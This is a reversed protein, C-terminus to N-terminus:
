SCCQPTPRSDVILATSEHAASVSRDSPQYSFRATCPAVYLGRAFKRCIADLYILPREFFRQLFAIVGARDASFRDHLPCPNQRDSDLLSRAVRPERSVLVPLRTWGDTREDRAAMMRDNPLFSQLPANHGSCFGCQNLGARTESGASNSRGITMVLATYRKTTSFFRASIPRLRVRIRRPKDTRKWNM